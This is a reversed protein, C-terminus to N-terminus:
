SNSKIDDVLNKRQKKNLEPLKVHIKNSEEVTTRYDENTQLRQLRKNARRRDWKKIKRGM